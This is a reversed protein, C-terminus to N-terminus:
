WSILLYSEMTLLEMCINWFVWPDELTARINYLYDAYRSDLKVFVKNNVKEQFFEGIFDLQHLRAKHNVTDAM